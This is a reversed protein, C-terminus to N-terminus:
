ISFPLKANELGGKPSLPLTRHKSFACLPSGILTLQVKKSPAIASDSRAFISQNDAIESWRTLKIWFKQYFSDGGV